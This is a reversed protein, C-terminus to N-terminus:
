KKAGGSMFSNIRNDIMITIINGRLEGALELFKPLSRWRVSENLKKFSIRRGDPLWQRRFQRLLILWENLADESTIVFSYAEHSAGKHQGSYDSAIILVGVDVPVLIYPNKEEAVRLSDSLSFLYGANTDLLPRGVGM